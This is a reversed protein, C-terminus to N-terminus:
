RKAVGAAERRWRGPTTGSWRRFSRMFPCVGSYGLSAAIDDLAAGTDSLLQRAVAYRIEDLVRQFTTGEAHLRRNLTRRHMSLMQAVDDGSASGRVLLTRLARRVQEVLRGRGLSEASAQAARLRAPDAGAVPLAMWRSPFRLACVEADFRPTVKFASRYPAVDAPQARSLFVESPAWGPGCLERVFNCGGALVSDYHLDAGPVGPHYIAFGLDVFGGRETLFALGAENNLHQHVTLTRLAEGVTPSHRVLEGLLGLDALHWMRGALLGLHPCGTAAAADRLLRGLAAYSARGEPSELAGPALGAGELLLDPDAGLQRILAPLGTFGGVRQTAAESPAPPQGPALPVRSTSPARM